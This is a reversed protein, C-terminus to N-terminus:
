VKTSHVLHPPQHVSTRSEVCCWVDKLGTSRTVVRVLLTIQLFCIMVVCVCFIRSINKRCIVFGFVILELDMKFLVNHKARNGGPCLQSNQM